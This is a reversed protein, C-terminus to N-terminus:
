SDEREKVPSFRANALKNLGAIVVIGSVILLSSLLFVGLMSGVQEGQQIQKGINIIFGNFIGHLLTALILGTFLFKKGEYKNEISLALFYGLTSSAAVHLFNSSIGRVAVLGLLDGLNEAADLVYVVNEIAAFGLASAAMYIIADQPEDFFNKGIAKFRVVVYKGFEEVFAIGLFSFVTFMAASALYYENFAFGAMREVFAVPIAILMGWIFIELLNRFKERHKDQFVFFMLWIASPIFAIPLGILCESTCM